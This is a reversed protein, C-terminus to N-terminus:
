SFVGSTRFLMMLWTCASVRVALLRRPDCIALPARTSSNWKKKAVTEAWGDENKGRIRVVGPVLRPISVHHCTPDISWPFIAASIHEARGKAVVHRVHSTHEIEDPDSWGNRSSRRSTLERLYTHDFSGNVERPFVCSTCVHVYMIKKRYLNHAQKLVPVNFVDISLLTSRHMFASRQSWNLKQLFTLNKFIM